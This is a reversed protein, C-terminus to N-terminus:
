GWRAMEEWVGGSGSSGFVVGAMPGASPIMLPLALLGEFFSRHVTQLADPDCDPGLLSGELFGDM